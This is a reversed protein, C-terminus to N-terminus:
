KMILMKRETSSSNVTHTSSSHVSIPPSSNAGIPPSTNLEVEEDSNNSLWNKIGNAIDFTTILSNGIIYATLETIQIAALTTQYTVHILIDAVSFGSSLMFEIIRM